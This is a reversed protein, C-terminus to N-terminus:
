VSSHQIKRLRHGELCVTLSGPSAFNDHGDVESFSGVRCGPTQQLEETDHWLLSAPQQQKYLSSHLHWPKPPLRGKGSQATVSFRWHLAAFEIVSSPASRTECTLMVKTFYWGKCVYWLVAPVSLRHSCSSTKRLLSAKHLSSSLETKLVLKAVKSKKPISSKLIHSLSIWFWKSDTM